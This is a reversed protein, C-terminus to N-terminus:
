GLLAEKIKELQADITADVISMGTDIKCGGRKIENDRIISLIANEGAAKSLEDMRCDLIAYDMPNVRIIVQEKVVASNISDNVTKIIISDDTNVRYGIVKQAISLALDIIESKQREIYERSVRHAETLVDEANKKIGEVRHLGEEVGKQVGESYGKKFAMDYAQKKIREVEKVASDIIKRSKEQAENLIKEASRVAKEESEKPNEHCESKIHIVPAKITYVTNSNINERKFVNCSLQM